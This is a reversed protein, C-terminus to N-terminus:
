GQGETPSPAPAAVSVQDGARLVLCSRGPFADGVLKKIRMVVETSINREATRFVIVDDPGLSLRQIAEKRAREPHEGCFDDPAKFETRPMRTCVGGPWAIPKPGGERKWREIRAHLPTWDDGQEASAQREAQTDRWHPCTSCTPSPPPIGLLDNMEDHADM